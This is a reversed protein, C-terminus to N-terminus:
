HLMQFVACFNVSKIMQHSLNFIDYTWKETGHHLQYQLADALDSYIMANAFTLALPHDMTAFQFFTWLEEEFAADILGPEQRLMYGFQQLMVDITVTEIAREKIGPPTNRVDQFLTQVAFLAYQRYEFNPSMYMWCHMVLSISYEDHVKRTEIVTLYSCGFLSCLCGSVNEYRGFGCVPM